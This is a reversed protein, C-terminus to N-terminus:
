ERAIMLSARDTFGTELDRLLIYYLGISLESVDIQMDSQNVVITQVIRGTYDWIEIRYARDEKLHLKANVWNSSPNPYLSTLGFPHNLRLEIDNEEEDKEFNGTNSGIYLADIAIDSFNGNGTTGVIRIRLNALAFGSLDIEAPYWANGQDGEISWASTGWTIGGDESLQVALSGMSSGYLHYQFRLVPNTVGSLDLCKKTTLVATKDPNKNGSSEVYRYYDGQLASSPGTNSTPTTGSRKRWNTNDDKNQKFLGLGGEFNLNYPWNSKTGNCIYDESVFTSVVTTCGSPNSDIVTLDYNGASVNQLDPTTSGDSWVYNYPAVGGSVTSIINATAGGLTTTTASLTVELATPESVFEEIFDKCGNADKIIATYTGSQLNTISATTDGTSWTYEYPLAGPTPYTLQISGDAAGNCSVDITIPEVDFTCPQADGIKVADIAMDGEKNLSTGLEAGFRLIVCSEGAFQNLSLTDRKWTNGQDGSYTQIIAWTYGGDISAQLFLNNVDDGWMHYSFSIEPSSLASFDFSPSEIIANAYGYPSEDADLPSLNADAYIYNQGEYAASPGTNLTPTTGSNLSFDGYLVSQYFPVNNWGQLGNEFTYYMPYQDIQSECPGSRSCNLNTRDFQLCYQMRASQEPTFSNRCSLRAYSMYNTTDPEFAQQNADVFNGVYTCGSTAGPRNLRPDAPTDCLEDGATTCNPNNTRTVLEDTISGNVSSRHTPYLSLYRGVLHLAVSPRDFGFCFTTLVVRNGDGPYTSSGCVPTGQSTMDGVFYLNMVNPLDHVDLLPGETDYNYNYLADDTIYNIKNCNYLQIGSSALGANIQVLLNLYDFWDIGQNGAQNGIIHAQIPVWITSNSSKALGSKDPQFLHANAQTFQTRAARTADLYAKAKPSPDGAYIDQSMGIEVTCITCLLALLLQTIQLTVRHM